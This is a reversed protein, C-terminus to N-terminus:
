IKVETTREKLFALGQIASLALDKKGEEHDTERESVSVINRIELVPFLKDNLM